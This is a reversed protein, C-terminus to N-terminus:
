INKLDNLLYCVQVFSMLLKILFRLVKLLKSSSENEQTNAKSKNLNEYNQLKGELTSCMQSM